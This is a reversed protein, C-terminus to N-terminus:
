VLATTEPTKRLSLWVVVAHLAFYYIPFFYLGWEHAGDGTIVAMLMFIYAVSWISWPLYNEHQPHRYTTRWQPIFTIITTSVALVNAWVANGSWIWLVLAALDFGVLYWDKTEPAHYADYVTKRLYHKLQAFAMALTIGGVGIVCAIPLADTTWHSGTIAHYTLLEVVGGFLWLLWVIVNARIRESFVERAYIFYAILHLILSATGFFEAPTNILAFSSEM